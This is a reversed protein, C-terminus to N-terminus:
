SDRENYQTVLSCLSKLFLIGGGKGVPVGRRVGKSEHFFFSINREKRRELYCKKKKSKKPLHANTLRAMIARECHEQTTPRKSTTHAQRTTNHVVETRQPVSWERGVRQMETGRPTFDSVGTVVKGM